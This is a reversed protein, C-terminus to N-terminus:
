RGHITGFVLKECLLLLSIDATAPDAFRRGCTPSLKCRMLLRKGSHVAHHPDLSM